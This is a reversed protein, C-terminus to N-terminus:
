IKLTKLTMPTDKINMTVWHNISILHCLLHASWESLGITHTSTQPKSSCLTLGVEVETQDRHLHHPSSISDRPWYNMWDPKHVSLGTFVRSVLAWILKGPQCIDKSYQWVETGPPYCLGSSSLPKRNPVRGFKDRHM